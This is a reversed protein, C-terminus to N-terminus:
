VIGTGVENTAPPVNCSSKSTMLEPEGVKLTTGAVKFRGPVVGPTAPAAMLKLTLPLLKPAPSENVNTEGLPVSIECFAAEPKPAASLRYGSALPLRALVVTYARM